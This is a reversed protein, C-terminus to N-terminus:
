ADSVRLEYVPLAPSQDATLSGDAEMLEIEERVPSELAAPSVYLIADLTTKLRDQAVAIVQNTSTAFITRFGLSGFWELRRFEMEQGADIIGAATAQEVVSAPPFNIVGALGREQLLDALDEWCAFPDVMVMAAYAVDHRRECGAVLAQLLCDNWDIVPLTAMALPSGQPLHALSPAYIQISKAPESGSLNASLRGMRRNSVENGLKVWEHRATIKYAAGCLDLGNEDNMVSNPLVNTFVPNAM